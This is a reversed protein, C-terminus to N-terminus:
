LEAFFHRIYLLQSWYRVAAVVPWVKFFISMPVTVYKMKKILCWIDKAINCIYMRINWICYVYIISSTLNQRHYFFFVGIHLRCWIHWQQFLVYQIMTGGRNTDFYNCFPFHLRHSLLNYIHRFLNSIKLKNNIENYIKYWFQWNSFAILETKIGM